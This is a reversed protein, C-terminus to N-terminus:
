RPGFTAFAWCPPITFLLVTLVGVMLGQLASVADFRPMSSVQFYRELFIPLTMQVLTGLAIGAASGVLGLGLTQMVYIRLVQASKAGLCKMVAISDMKQQLHAQIATAVGLAGIM